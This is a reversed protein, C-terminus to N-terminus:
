ATEPVPDGLAAWADRRRRELDAQADEPTAGAGFGFGDLLGREDAARYGAEAFVDATEWATGQMEDEFVLCVTVRAPPRPVYEVPPTGILNECATM